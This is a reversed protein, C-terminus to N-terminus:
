FHIRQHSEEFNASLLEFLKALPTGRLEDHLPMGGTLKLIQNRMELGQTRDIRVSISETKSKM